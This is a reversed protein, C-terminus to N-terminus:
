SEGREELGAILHLLDVAEFPKTMYAVAGAEMGREIDQEHGQTSVVVVRLGPLLNRHRLETLLELGGMRPMNIDLVVLDVDPNEDLRQLAERGDGACVVPFGRLMVEYIRQMLKSDDVALIKRPQM